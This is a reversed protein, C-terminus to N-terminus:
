AILPRNNKCIATSWVMAGDIGAVRAQLQLLDGAAFVYMQCAILTASNQAIGCFRHCSAGPYLCRHVTM